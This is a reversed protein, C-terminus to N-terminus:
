FGPIPTNLTGVLQATNAGLQVNPDGVVRYTALAETTAVLNTPIFSIVEGGNEPHEMLESYITPYPNTADAIGAAQAGFATDTAGADAGSTVM